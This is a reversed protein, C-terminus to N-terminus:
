SLKHPNETVESNWEPQVLKQESAEKKFNNKAAPKKIVNGKPALGVSQPRNSFAGFRNYNM